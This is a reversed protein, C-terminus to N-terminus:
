RRTVPLPQRMQQGALLQDRREIFNAMAMHAAGIAPKYIPPAVKARPAFAAIEAHLPQLILEGAGFVGGVYGICFDNLQMQLQEIVAKIARALEHAADKLIAIATADGEQATAVVLKSLQAIQPMVNNDPNYIVAPLEPPSNVNFFRCVTETLKTEGHARRDYATMVAELARRGIYTGSGEDGLTPGWGGARAVEGDKNVGYAISGTGAIIVIGPKGATAGALAIRADTELTFNLTPLAQEIAEYMKRHSDPHSVGALGLCAATIEHPTINAQRCAQTIAKVIAATASEVGVRHFNAADAHGEGVLCASLDIDFDAPARFLMARTNTGGGDVGLWYHSCEPAEALNRIVSDLVETLPRMIKM